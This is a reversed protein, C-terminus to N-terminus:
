ESRSLRCWSLMKRKRLWRKKEERCEREVRMRTQEVSLLFREMEGHLSESIDAAETGDEVESEHQQERTTSTGSSSSSPAHRDSLRYGKTSIITRSM